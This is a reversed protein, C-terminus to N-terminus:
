RTDGHPEENNRSWLTWALFGVIGLNIALLITKILTVGRLLEYIEIPVYITGSATAFWEAWLRERWLGYAEVFRALAYAGAGFVLLWLDRKTVASVADLFIRPYQSAPNLHFHRVIEEGIMQANQHVMGLLGFGATLVLMGKLAELTAVFRMGRGSAPRV